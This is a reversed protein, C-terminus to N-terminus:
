HEATSHLWRVVSASSTVSEYILFLDTVSSLSASFVNAIWYLISRTKLRGCVLQTLVLMLVHSLLRLRAENTM